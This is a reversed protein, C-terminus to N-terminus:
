GGGGGGGRREEGVAVDKAFRRVLSCCGVLVGPPPPPVAAHLDPVPVGEPGDQDHDEQAPGEDGQPQEEHPVALLELRPPPACRPPPPSLAAAPPPLLLPPRAPPPVSTPWVGGERRKLLGRQDTSWSMGFGGYINGGGPVGMRPNFVFGEDAIESGSGQSLGSDFDNSNSSSNMNTVAFIDTADTVFDSLSTPAPPQNLASTTTVSPLDLEVPSILLVLLQRQLRRCPPWALRAIGPNSFVVGDGDDVFGSGLLLSQVSASWTFHYEVMDLCLRAKTLAIKVLADDAPSGDACCFLSVRASEFAGVAVDRETLLPQPPSKADSEPLGHLDMLHERCPKSGGAADRRAPCPARGSEGALRRCLATPSLLIQQAWPDHHHRSTQQLLLSTTACLAPKLPTDLTTDRCRQLM